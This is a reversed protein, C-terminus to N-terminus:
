FEDVPCVRLALDGMDTKRLCRKGNSDMFVRIRGTPVMSFATAVEENTLLREYPRLLLYAREM